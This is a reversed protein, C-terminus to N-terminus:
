LLAEAGPRRPHIIVLGPNRPTQPQLLSENRENLENVGNTEASGDVSPWPLPLDETQKVCVYVQSACSLGILVTITLRVEGM